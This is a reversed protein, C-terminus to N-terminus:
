DGNTYDGFAMPQFCIACVRLIAARSVGSGVRCGQGGTWLTLLLCAIITCYAQIEIGTRFYKLGQVDEERLREREQCSENVM